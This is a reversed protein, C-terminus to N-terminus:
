ARRRRRTLVGVAGVGLLAFCGPEPTLQDRVAGGPFQSNHINYYFALPNAFANNITTANLNSITGSLINGSRITEPSGFDLVISGTSTIPGQHIHHGSLPFDINTLTVNITASGTNGTGTGNNLVVTGIATADLDGQSPVGAANVEKIGNAAIPFTMTAAGALPACVALAGTLFGISLTTRLRM